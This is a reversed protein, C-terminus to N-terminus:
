REGAKPSPSALWARVRPHSLADRNVVHEPVRGALCTLVSECASRGNGSFLQDTWAAAHPAVIINDLKLLPDDAPIPEAEFVDLAAGQIVGLRLAEVLAAQDVIPGRAVNILFASPKMTALREANILHRTEETLPCCVCVFDSESLLQELGVLEAGAAGGAMPRAYPDFAIARLDFARSLRALDRGINGLGVIGLVRGVLGVGMHDVREHWNGERTIRDKTVIRHSLSLIFAMAAAAVPRRVADPTITLIVGARSCASVDVNDYGVGFRAVVRLDAIGDLTESTVQRNLLILADLGRLQDARLVDETGSVFEWDVNPAADLLSLDLDGFAPTGNARLFDSSLGVRYTKM